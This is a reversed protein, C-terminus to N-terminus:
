VRVVSWPWGAELGADEQAAESAEAESGYTTPTASFTGLSQNWYLEHMRIAYM